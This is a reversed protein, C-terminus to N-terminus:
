GRWLGRSKRSIRCGVAVDRGCGAAVKKTVMFISLGMWCAQLHCVEEDEEEIGEIDQVLPVIFDFLMDVKELSGVATDQKLITEVIKM